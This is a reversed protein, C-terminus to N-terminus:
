EGRRDIESEIDDRMEEVCEWNRGWEPLMEKYTDLSARLNWLEGDTLQPGKSYLERCQSWAM